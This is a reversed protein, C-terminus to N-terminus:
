RLARRRWLGQSIALGLLILVLAGGLRPSPEESLALWGFFVAWLPVQYNVLALFGPGASAIVALLMLQALATPVLGLYVIAALPEPALAAATPPALWFLPVALVAALGMAATAFALIGFSPARKSIISGSAYGLATVLFAGQALLALVPGQGLGSLAEPGILVLVGAFGLGFGLAKQSTLAEGPVFYHALALVFLPVTSMFVGALASDLHSQGWSLASFPVVNACVAMALAFAWFRREDPTALGPLREGRWLTLAALALAGVWLRIVVLTLPAAGGLAVKTAMFSAGWILGLGALLGWDRATATM